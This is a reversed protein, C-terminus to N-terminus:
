LTICNNNNNNVSQKALSDIIIEIKMSNVMKNISNSYHEKHKLKIKVRIKIVTLITCIGYLESKILLKINIKSYYVTIIM